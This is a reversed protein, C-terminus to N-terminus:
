AMEDFGKKNMIKALRWLSPVKWYPERLLLQFENIAEDLKSSKELECARIFRDENM